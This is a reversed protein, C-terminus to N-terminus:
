AFVSIVFSFSRSAKLFLRVSFSISVPSIISPFPNSGLRLKVLVQFFKNKSGSVVLSRKTKGISCVEPSNGDTLFSM